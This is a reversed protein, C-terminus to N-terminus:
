GDSGTKNAAVDEYTFDYRLEGYAQAEGVAKTYDAIAYLPVKDALTALRWSLTFESPTNDWSVDFWLFPTHQSAESPASFRAKLNTVKVTHERFMPAGLAIPTRRAVISPSPLDSLSLDSKLVFDKAFNGALFDQAPLEYKESVTVINAERDDTIALEDTSKIGPLRYSYYELYRRQFSAISENSLRYRISDADGDRYTTRVSLRLPAEKYNPFAFHEEILITPQYRLPRPISELRASASVLPLAFGFDPAVVTNATGGQLYNTPDLWHVVGDIRAKVIVHDFAWLSPLRNALGYGADIDTLAAQAEIGLRKLISVLLLAKDKCDGFGSQIVTVPRRPVHSGAGMSLSIYRIEDQVLRLAPILRDKPTPHKAAIADLRAAFAAPFETAPAYHPLVADVVPQWDSVSSIEIYGDMASEAPVYSEAAVPEPDRIEWLYTTLGDAETVKADIDTAVKRIHLKQASSWILKQRILAVPEEWRTPFWDAYLGNGVIQTIETTKAYDVIDGVRIDDLNLRATLRGDFIGREADRERRYIDFQANGFHDITVGDRIIRLHNLTVKHRTPDFTWEVTAGRELGPRDVIRYAYRDYSAYGGDLQKVQFESLINSIGNVIQKARAADPEPLPTADVWGPAPGLGIADDARANLSLAALFLSAVVLLASRWAAEISRSHQRFVM